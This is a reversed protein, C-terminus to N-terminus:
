LRRIQRVRGESGTDVHRNEIDEDRTRGQLYTMQVMSRSEVYIGECIVNKEKQSVENQIVSERPRDMNYVTGVTSIDTILCYDVQLDSKDLKQNHQAPWCRKHHM